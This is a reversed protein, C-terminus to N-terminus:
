QSQIQSQLLKAFGKDAIGLVVRKEKGIARGLTYRDGKIAYPIQYHTCKDILKKKTNQSADESLLVFYITGQQIGKVVLEEGTVLKRACNMLGLTNLWKVEKM